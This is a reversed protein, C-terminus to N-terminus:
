GGLILVEEFKELVEDYCVETTEDSIVEVEGAFVCEQCMRKTM